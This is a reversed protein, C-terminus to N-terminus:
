PVKLEELLKKAQEDKPDLEVAQRIHERAEKNQGTQALLEGLDRHAEVMFPQCHLATELSEIAAKRDGQGSYCRALQYHAQAHDPKLEIVRLFHEKAAPYRKQALTVYGLYYQGEVSDPDIRLATKLSVEAGNLDGMQLQTRGLLRWAMDLDPDEEVLKQLADAAEPLSNKAVLLAANKYRSRKDVRLEVLEDNFPDPWAQDGPMESILRFHEDLWKTDGRHKKITALVAYAAKRSFPSVTAKEIHVLADEWDNRGFALRALGLHAMPNSPKDRILLQFQIKAADSDGQEYLANALKLRPSDPENHPCLEAARQFKSIAASNDTLTFIVGQFYPWRAEKPELNEAQVFCVRAEEPFKHALLVKGLHGWAASSRRHRLVEKRAADIASVVAPEL